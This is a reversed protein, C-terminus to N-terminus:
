GGWTRQLVVDWVIDDACDLRVHGVLFELRGGNGLDGFGAGGDALPHSGHVCVVKHGLTYFGFPYSSLGIYHRVM